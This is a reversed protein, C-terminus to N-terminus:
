HSTNFNYVLGVRLNSYTKNDFTVDTKANFMYPIIGNYQNLMIKTGIFVLMNKTIIRSVNLNFIHNDLSKKFGKDRDLIHLYEYHTDLIYKSFEMTHSFGLTLAKENRDLAQNFSDTQIESYKIGAYFNLLSTNLKSGLLLRLYFSDDNLNTLSANINDADNRIYGIDLSLDDFTYHPVDYFNIRAFLENKNNKLKDQAYQINNLEFQYYLSIHRHLGYSLSFEAGKNSQITSFPNQTAVTNNLSFIDSNKDGHQYSAKISIENKPLTFARVDNTSSAIDSASLLTSLSLLSAIKTIHTRM